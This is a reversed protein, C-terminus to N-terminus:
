LRRQAVALEQQVGVHADGSRALELPDCLLTGGHEAAIASLSGKQKAEKQGEEVCAIRFADVKQELRHTEFYGLSIAAGALLVGLILTKTPKDM